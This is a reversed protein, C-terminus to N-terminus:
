AMEAGVRGTGIAAPHAPAIEAGIAMGAATGPSLQQTHNTPAIKQLGEAGDEMALAGRDLEDHADEGAQGLSQADLARCPHELHVGIRHQLPQEVCHLLQLGEGSVDQVVHPDVLDLQVFEKGQEARDLGARNGRSLGDLAQLTRGLPDPHSHVGLALQQQRNVDAIAGQGQGL